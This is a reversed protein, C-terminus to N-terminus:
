FGEPEYDASCQERDVISVAASQLEAPYGESEEQPTAEQEPTLAKTFGWGSVTAEDGASPAAEALEIPAITSTGDIARTGSWLPKELTLVGVDHDNTSPDYAPDFSTTVVPDEVVGPAGAAELDGTGALVEIQSPLAAEFGGFTVCHAATLIHTADRVVGGCFQAPRVNGPEEPDLREPDYLAVQFPAEAIQTAHGAVVRPQPRSALAPSPVAAALVLLLSLLAFPAALLASAGRQLSMGAPSSRAPRDHQARRL